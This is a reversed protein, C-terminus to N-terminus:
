LFEEEFGSVYNEFNFRIKKERVVTYATFYTILIALLFNVAVQIRQIVIYKHYQNYTPAMKGKIKIAAISWILELYCAVM